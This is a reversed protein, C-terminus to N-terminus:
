AAVPDDSAETTTAVLVQHVSAARSTRAVVRALMPGGAIDLLVKGPLRSSSMRAQIIAVVLPSM